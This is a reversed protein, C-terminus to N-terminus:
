WKQKESVKFSYFSYSQVGCYFFGRSDPNINKHLAVLQSCCLTTRKYLTVHRLAASLLRQFLSPRWDLSAEPFDPSNQRCCRPWAFCVYFLWVGLFLCVSYTDYQINKTLRCWKRSWLNHHEIDRPETLSSRVQLKSCHVNQHQVSTSDDAQVLFSLVIEFWWVAALPQSNLDRTGTPSVSPARLSFEETQYSMHLILWTKKGHFEFQLSRSWQELLWNM